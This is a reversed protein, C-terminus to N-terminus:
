LNALQCLFTSFSSNRRSEILHKKLLLQIYSFCCFFLQLLMVLLCLNGPQLYLV